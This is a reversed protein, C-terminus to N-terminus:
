PRIDETISGASDCIFLKEGLENYTKIILNSMLGPDIETTVYDNQRYGASKIKDLGAPGALDASSFDAFYAQSATYANKLDSKAHGDFTDDCDPFNPIAITAMYPKPGETISCASDCIFLKEGSGHYTRIILTSMRGSDIETTVYDSQRYGASKIKDLGAQGALDANMFDAFYAQSATYANKLDSKAHGDFTDVCDLFNPIAIAAMIGIMAIVIILEIATFGKQKSERLKSIM